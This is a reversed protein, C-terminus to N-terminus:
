YSYDYVEVDDNEKEEDENENEHATAVVQSKGKQSGKKSPSEHQSAQEFHQIKDLAHCLKFFSYLAGLSSIGISAWTYYNWSKNNQNNFLQIMVHPLSEFLIEVLSTSRSLSEIIYFDGSYSKNVGLIIAYAFLPIGIPGGFTLFLGIALNFRLRAYQKYCCNILSLVITLTFLVLTPLIIFLGFLKYLYSPTFHQTLLYWISTATSSIRLLGGLILLLIELKINM